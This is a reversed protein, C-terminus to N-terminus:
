SKLMQASFGIRSCFRQPNVFADSVFLAVCLAPCQTSIFVSQFCECMLVFPQYYSSTKVPCARKIEVPELGAARREARVSGRSVRRACGGWPVTRAETDSLCSARKERAPKKEKTKSVDPFSLSSSSRDVRERGGWARVADMVCVRTVRCYRSAM